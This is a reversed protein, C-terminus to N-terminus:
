ALRAGSRLFEAYSMEKKGEPKVTDVVLETGELHADVIAVRIKKGAREFYTFTGPWGEYARIKLLNQYADANLDLHGDSKEIKECYTAVDHNQARAEIHGKIWLPLIQALLKGGEHMLHHEFQTAHPPWEPAGVPKQAVIPGHDMEEDLLIISVGTKKDDNVIASRIPSAGRLRPLLSPHVNLVGRQPTDLVTRSLLKGYAVVVFVDFMSSRSALQSIFDADLLEPQWIDIGHTEAWVKVPPPSLKLGRGKKEDPSTVIAEPVLGASALEDLVITALEPTGFFVFSLKSSRAELKWPPHSKSAGPVQCRTAKNEKKTM